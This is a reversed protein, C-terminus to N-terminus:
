ELVDDVPRRRQAVAPAAYGLRLLVQPSQDTRFARAVAERLGEVEIPQDLFGVQVGELTARLLARGLAQGAALWPTRGDRATTLLALVPSATALEHDRAARGRGMDFTRILLPAALTMVDGHPVPYGSIGDRHRTAPGRVWTALERRFRRDAMQRRDADAVLEAVTHRRTYDTAVVLTAREAAVDAILAEVISPPVEDTSFASRSTRRRPIAPLLEALPQDVPGDRTVTVRACTEPDVPDPWLQIRCSFGLAALTVRLHLLAAGVSILAERDDPDTVALGRSTDLGVSVSDGDLRFRWPQTNHSSPALVAYRLCFRLVDSPGAEPPLDEPAVRWEPPQELDVVVPGAM